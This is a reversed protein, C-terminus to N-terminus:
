KDKNELNICDKKGKLMVGEELQLDHSALEQTHLM